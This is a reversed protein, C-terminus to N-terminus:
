EGLDLRDRILGYAEVVELARDDVPATGALVELAYDLAAILDLAEDRTFVVPM